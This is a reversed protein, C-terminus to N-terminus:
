CGHGKLRDNKALGPEIPLQCINKGQDGQLQIVEGYEPRESVTDNYAFKKKFAKVLRKKDCGGAIGQAPTLTKRHNRQQIRTHVSDETGAPLLGDSKSAAAYPDFSLLNQIAPVRLLIGSSLCSEATVGAEMAGSPSQFGKKTKSGDPEEKSNVMDSMLTQWGRRPGTHNKEPPM